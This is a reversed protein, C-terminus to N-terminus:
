NQNLIEDDYINEFHKKHMAEESAIKLLLNKIEEGEEAFVDALNTYLNFSAEERKMATILLDQYTMEEKEPEVVIYDSIKLNEIEKPLQLEEIGRKRINELVKIHGKEMDELKKLEDEKGHFRSHKQLDQYFKVAMQERSVAFDIIQNFIKEKM